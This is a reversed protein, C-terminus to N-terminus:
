LVASSWVHGSSSRHAPGIPGIPCNPALGIPLPGICCNGPCIPIGYPIVLGRAM